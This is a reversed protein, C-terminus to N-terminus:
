MAHSPTAKQDLMGLASGLKAYTISDATQWDKEPIDTYNFAIRARQHVFNLRLMERVESAQLGVFLEHSFGLLVVMDVNGIPNSPNQLRNIMVSRRIALTDGLDNDYGHLQQSYLRCKEAADRRDVGKGLYDLAVDTASYEFAIEPNTPQM